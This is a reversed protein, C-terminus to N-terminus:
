FDTLDDIFSEKPQTEEIDEENEINQNRQYQRIAAEFNFLEAVGERLSENYKVLDFEGDSIGIEELQLRIQEDEINRRVDAVKKDLKTQKKKIDRINIAYSEMKDNITNVFSKLYDNQQRLYNNTHKYDSVIDRTEQIAKRQSREDLEFFRDMNVSSLLVNTNERQRIDRAVNLEEIRQTCLRKETKGTVPNKIPRTFHYDHVDELGKINNRAWQALETAKIKTKVSESYKTVADLLLDDSFKATRGM